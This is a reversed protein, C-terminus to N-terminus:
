YERRDRPHGPNSDRSHRIEKKGGSSRSCAGGEGLDAAAPGPRAAAVARLLTTGSISEGCNCAREWASGRKKRRENTKPKSDWM